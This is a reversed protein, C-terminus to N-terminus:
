MRHRRMANSHRPPLPLPAHLDRPKNTPTRKRARSILWPQTTNGLPQRTRAYQQAVVDYMIWKDLFKIKWWVIISQLWIKNNNALLPLSFYRIFYSRRHTHRFIFTCVYLYFRECVFDRERLREYLRERECLRERTCLSIVSVLANDFQECSGRNHLQYCPEHLSTNVVNNRRSERHGYLRRRLVHGRLRTEQHRSPVHSTVADLGALPYVTFLGTTEYVSTRCDVCGPIKLRFKKLHWM